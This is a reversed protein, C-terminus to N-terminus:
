IILRIDFTQPFLDIAAHSAQCTAGDQQFGVYNVDISHPTLVSFDTIMSRYIGGNFTITACNENEVYYPGIIGKSSLSCKVTLRLLHM